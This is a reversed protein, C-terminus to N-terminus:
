FSFRLEANVNNAKTDHNYAGKYGVKVSLVPTFQAQLAVGTTVVNKLEKGYLNAVGQNNIVLSGEAAKDKHFRHYAVDGLLNLQVGGIAFPISPRLGASTVILDRNNDKLQVEGKTVGKNKIHMYSVGAYPEIAFHEGKLGTYALEAFVNQTQSHTKVGQAFEARQEHKGWSQIFGIKPTLVNLRHEATLGLHVARDKSTRDIKHSNQTSGVFVGLHKNTDITADIGVLQNYAHSSLSDTSFHTFTGSTWIQTGTNLQAKVAGPQALQQRLLLGNLVNHQEAALDEDYSLRAFVQRANEKTGWILSQYAASNTAADLANAIAVENETTAASSLAKKQVTVKLTNANSENKVAFFDYTRPTEIVANEAGVFSGTGQVSVAKQPDKQLQPLIEEDFKNPVLVSGDAFTANVNAIGNNLLFRGGKEVTATVTKATSTLTETVFGNESPKTVEAKPLVELTAGQKVIVQQASGLSQNLGSLQGENVTIAGTFSNNGTLTLTGSGNKTLAGVYGQAARENRAAERALGVQYEAKEEATAGARNQMLAQLEAKRTTWTAAEAQDEVQRAKIAKDNIDNSWVDNQNLNIKMNGLFQGPGFMAKGLDLIGWGWVNSPVGQETEWRELPKGELGKRLTTQRATTLMVDRAQDTTMYPYRSFIVGLAGSVHPAAMSTGGASKYIPDGYTNNDQLQIYSSYINASPAAITWWKSHGALNFEQIDAGAKEDSVDDNSDNPYGKGGVQGTVNVWYKEADPRFYPLMARTFSEAMMSRNGATFVQIVQKNKAVEYAADVFNKEGSTVFQYYAKEAEGLNSLYIHAAPSSIPEPAKPVDYYQVGYEPVDRWGYKPKYGQAGAFSSNVRRNSGWSNNIVKAGADALASYGQLFFDYDQNPGYTMNDNGGTNASYLNAGFAVGHMENGDRSAAMTGGVHTGHADNTYKHWAGDINFAEGKAFIGNDTKDFNRKGNKVPENKNIPGNGVSADPYRMGDKSYTGETKVVHIRGDQFEPHNLLVGSDMVGIKVGSGNFGLAYATSANMSTLGWDKLYEASEWSKTNGAQGQESYAAANAAYWGVLLALATKQLTQPKM